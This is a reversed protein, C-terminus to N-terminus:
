SGNKNQTTLLNRLTDAGGTNNGAGSRRLNTNTNTDNQRNSSTLRDGSLSSGPDKGGGSRDGTSILNGSGAGSPQRGGGGQGGSQRNEFQGMLQTFEGSRTRTPSSQGTGSGTVSFGQRTVTQSNSGDPSSTRMSQGFLYHARTRGGRRDIVSIGGRIGITMVDTTITTENTKSIEGGVVRLVGSLLNVAIKGKRTGPDYVFENLVIEANPGLTMSSQDLFLLHAVSDADTKIREFRYTTDGLYIVREGPAGPAGLGKAQGQVGTVVGAKEPQQAQVAGTATTLAVAALWWDKYDAPVM